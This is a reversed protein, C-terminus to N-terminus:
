SIPFTATCTMPLRGRSPGRRSSAVATSCSATPAGTESDAVVVSPSPRVPRPSPMAAIAVASTWQHSGGDDHQRGAGAGADAGLHVLHQQRQAAHRHDGARHGRRAGNGAYSPHHQHHAVALLLGDPGRDLGREVVLLWLHRHHGAARGPVGGLPLRERQEGVVDLGALDVDDRHVVGGTGQGRLVEVLAHQGRGGLVAAGDGDRREVM